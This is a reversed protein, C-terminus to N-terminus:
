CHPNGVTHFLILAAHPRIPLSSNQEGKWEEVAHFFHQPEELSCGEGGGGKGLQLGLCLGELRYWIFLERM